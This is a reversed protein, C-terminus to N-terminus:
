YIRIVPCTFPIQREAIFTTIQEVAEKDARAIAESFEHHLSYERGDNLQYLDQRFKTFQAKEHKTLNWQAVTKKEIQSASSVVLDKQQSTINRRRHRIQQFGVAM